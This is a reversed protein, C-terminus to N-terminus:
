FRLSKLQDIADFKISQFIQFFLFLCFFQDIIECLHFIMHFHNCIRRFIFVFCYRFFFCDFRAFYQRNHYLILHNFNSYTEHNKDCDYIVVHLFFSFVIQCFFDNITNFRFSITTAFHHCIKKFFFADRLIAFMFTTKITAIEVIFFVFVFRFIFRFSNFHFLEFRLCNIISM